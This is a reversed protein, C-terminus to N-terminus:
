MWHRPFLWLVCLLIGKERKHSMKRKIVTESRSVVYRGDPREPLLATPMYTEPSCFLPRHAIERKSVAWRGSKGGAFDPRLERLLHALALRRLKRRRLGRGIVIRREASRNPDLRSARWAALLRNMAFAWSLGAIIGIITLSLGEKMVQGLVTTRAAGLALRIGIERRREAVVYSLVGSTGIAALLLALGAFVGVLEALM